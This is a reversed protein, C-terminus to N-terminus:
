SGTENCLWRVALIHLFRKFVKPDIDFDDAIEDVSGGDALEALLQGAAFRTGRFVPVGSLKSKNVELAEHFDLESKELGLMSEMFFLDGFSADPRM